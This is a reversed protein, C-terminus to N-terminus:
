EKMDLLDRESLERYNGPPLDEEDSFFVLRKRKEIFIDKQGREGIRQQADRIFMPKAIGASNHFKM